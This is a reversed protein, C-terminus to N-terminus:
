NLEQASSRLYKKNKKKQIIGTHMLERRVFLTKTYNESNQQNRISIIQNLNEIAKPNFAMIKKLLMFQIKFFTAKGSTVKAGYDSQYNPSLVSEAGFVEGHGLQAFYIPNQNNKFLSVNGKKIIYVFELPQDQQFLLNNFTMKVKFFYYYYKRVEEYTLFIAKKILEITFEVKIRQVAM